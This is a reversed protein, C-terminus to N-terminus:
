AHRNLEDRRMVWIMCRGVENPAKIEASEIRELRFGSKRAVAASALNAEDCHIEIRDIDPLSFAAGSLLGVAETAIGKRTHRVDVWYGIELARPGIRPMLGCGGVYAGDAKLIIAYNARGECGFQEVNQRVFSLASADTPPTQAWPMWGRLHEHSAETAEKVLAADALRYRRLAVVQGSMKEPPHFM